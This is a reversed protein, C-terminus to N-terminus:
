MTFNQHPPASQSSLRVEGRKLRSDCYIRNEVSRSCAPATKSAGSPNSIKRKGPYHAPTEALERNTWGERKQLIFIHKLPRPLSDLAKSGFGKVLYQREPDPHVDRLEVKAWRDGQMSIHGAQNEGLKAHEPWYRYVGPALEEVRHTYLYQQVFRLTAFDAILPRRHSGPSDRAELTLDVRGRAESTSAPAGRVVEGFTFDTTIPSPLKTDDSRKQRPQGAFRPCSRRWLSSVSRVYQGLGSLRTRRLSEVSHKTFEDYERWATHHSDEFARVVQLEALGRGDFIGQETNVLDSRQIDRTLFAAICAM